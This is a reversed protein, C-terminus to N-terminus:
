TPHETSLLDVLASLETLADLPSLRLPDLQTLRRLAAQEGSSISAVAHEASKATGNMATPAAGRTRELESLIASARRTVPEPVGALRAVHVGYSRDAAGAVVRHLFVVQEGRELVEVQLSAV